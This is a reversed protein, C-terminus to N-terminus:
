KNLRTKVSGVMEEHIGLATMIVVDLEDYTKKSIKKKSYAEEVASELIRLINM